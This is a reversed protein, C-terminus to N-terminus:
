RLRGAAAALLARRIAFLRVRAAVGHRRNRPAGRHGFDRDNFTIPDVGCGHLLRRFCEDAAPDIKGLDDWMGFYGDIRDTQGADLLDEIVLLEAGEINMRLIRADHGSELVFSSLRAAPVDLSGQAKRASFLSDAKGKRGALFLTATSGEHDPGVLAVNLLELNEVGRLREEAVAFHNPNAEFALIDLRGV